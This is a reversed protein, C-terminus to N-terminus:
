MFRLPRASTEGPRGSLRCPPWHGNEEVRVYENRQEDVIVDVMGGGLVPEDAQVFGVRPVFEPRIVDRVGLNGNRPDDAM